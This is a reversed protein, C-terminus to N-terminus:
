VGYGPFSQNHDTALENLGSFGGPRLIPWLQRQRAISDPWRAAEAGVPLSSAKRLQVECDTGLLSIHSVSLLARWGARNEFGCPKGSRYHFRAAYREHGAQSDM